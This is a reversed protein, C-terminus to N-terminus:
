KIIDELEKLQSELYSITNSHANKGGMLYEVVETNKESELQKERWYICEKERDILEQLIQKISSKHWNLIKNLEFDHIAGTTMAVKLGKSISTQFKRNFEKEQEKIIEILSM